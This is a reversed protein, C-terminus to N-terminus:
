PSPSPSATETIGLAKEVEPTIDIGGYGVYQRTMVLKLNRQQAIKAAADRVQQVLKQSIAGYKKELALAEQRKKAPSAKQGVIQREANALQTQADNFAPWNATLRSVDVLGVPSSNGTCAALAACLAILITAKKM